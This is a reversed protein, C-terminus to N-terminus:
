QPISQYTSPGLRNQFRHLLNTISSPWERKKKLGLATLTQRTNEPFIKFVQYPPLSIDVDYCQRLLFGVGM